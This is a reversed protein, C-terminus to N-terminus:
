RGPALLRGHVPARNKAHGRERGRESNRGGALSLGLGLWRRGRWHARALGDFRGLRRRSVVWFSAQIGGGGFSRVLRGHRGIRCRWFLSGTGSFSRRWQWRLRAAALLVCFWL